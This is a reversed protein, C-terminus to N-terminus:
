MFLHSDVNNAIDDPMTEQTVCAYGLLHEQINRSCTLLCFDVGLTGLVDILSSTPRDLCFMDHYKLLMLYAISMVVVASTMGISTQM